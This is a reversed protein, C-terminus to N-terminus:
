KKEEMMLYKNYEKEIYAYRKKRQHKTKNM